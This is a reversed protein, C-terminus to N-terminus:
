GCTRLHNHLDLGAPQHDTSSGRKVRPYSTALSPTSGDVKRSETEDPPYRRSSLPQIGDLQNKREAM